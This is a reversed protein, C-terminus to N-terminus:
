KPDAVINVVTRCAQNAEGRSYRGVIELTEERRGLAPASQRLSTFGAFLGIADVDFPARKSNAGNDQFQRRVCPWSGNGYGHSSLRQRRRDGHVTMSQSDNGRTRCHNWLAAMQLDLGRASVCM